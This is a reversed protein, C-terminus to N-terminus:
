QQPKENREQQRAERPLQYPQKLGREAATRTDAGSDGAQLAAKYHIVAQQRDDRIDAIRGLYIHAWAVLRPDKSVQLTRQFYSTAGQMDKNLSAAQALVFLARGEDGQKEDLAKQALKQAAVSDGAALRQQAEELLDGSRKHESLVEPPAKPAWQMNEAARREHDVDLSYLWDPLADALGVQDTEFKALQDYFYRTLIFGEAMAENAERQRVPEANKGTAAMRSEVAKILSETVLLSVDQKFTDAMPASQVTNLLPAMRKMANPRKAILPDLIFHLYTHRIEDLRLNGGGPSVVLFYDAGYNRANGPGSAAMPEIYVTFARGVYGSIPLRLYVDTALMLKTVPDHYRAIWQEYQYEHAKWIGDLNVTPVFQQLAPVFGLVYTADPPLDAEKVKLAFKPPEGMNLALSVYQALDRSADPQQHDRYFSCVEASAQRAQPSASVAHAIEDLVQKRIDGGSDRAYGCHAITAMVSFLTESADLTAKSTQQALGPITAAACAAAVALFRPFRGLVTRRLSRPAAPAAAMRLM